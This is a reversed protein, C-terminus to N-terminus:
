RRAYRNVADRIGRMSEQPLFVNALQRETAEMVKRASFMGPVDITYLSEVPLRKPGKRRAIFTGGNSTIVFAGPVTVAKGRKIEFIVQRTGRIRRGKRLAPVKKVFFVMNKGRKGTATIIAAPVGNVSSSRVKFAPKVDGAKIRYDTTIQRRAFTNGKDAARRVGQKLAATQVSRSMGALLDKAAKDKIEIKLNM